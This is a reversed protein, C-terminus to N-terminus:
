ELLHIEGCIGGNNHSNEGFHEYFTKSISPHICDEQKLTLLM